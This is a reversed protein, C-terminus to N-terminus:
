DWPRSFVSSDSSRELWRSSRPVMFRSASLPAGELQLDSGWGAMWTDLFGQAAKQEAPSLSQRARTYESMYTALAAARKKPPLTPIAVRLAEREEWTM